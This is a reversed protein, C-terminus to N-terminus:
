MVIISAHYYHVTMEIRGTDSDIIRYKSNDYCSSHYLPGKLFHGWKDGYNDLMFKSMSHIYFREKNRRDISRVIKVNASVETTSLYKYQVKCKRGYHSIIRTRLRITSIVDINPVGENTDYKVQSLSKIYEKNKVERYRSHFRSLAQDNGQYAEELAQQTEEAIVRIYM